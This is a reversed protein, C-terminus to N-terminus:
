NQKYKTQTQYRSWRTSWKRVSETGRRREESGNRERQRPGPSPPGAVDFVVEARTDSTNAHQGGPGGSRSFRWTLESLAITCSRSVRLVGDDDAVSAAYSAPDTSAAPWTPSAPTSRCSPWSCLDSSCVDSSWDSILMEYATKQKFFFVFFICLM